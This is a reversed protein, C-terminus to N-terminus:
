YGVGTYLGEFVGVFPRCGKNCPLPRTAATLALATPGLVYINM